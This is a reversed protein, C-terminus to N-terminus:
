STGLGSANTEGSASRLGRIMKAVADGDSLTSVVLRVHREPLRLDGLRLAGDIKPEARDGKRLLLVRTCVMRSLVSWTQFM